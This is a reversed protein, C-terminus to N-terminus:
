KGLTTLKTFARIGGSIAQEALSLCREETPVYHKGTAPTKRGSMPGDGDGGFISAESQDVDPM